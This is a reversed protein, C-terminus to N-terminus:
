VRGGLRRGDRALRRWAGPIGKSLTVARRPLPTVM